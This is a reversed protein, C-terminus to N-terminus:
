AKKEAETLPMSAQYVAQGVDLILEMGAVSMDQLKQMDRYSLRGSVERDGIEFGNEIKQLGLRCAETYAAVPRGDRQLIAREWASKCELWEDWKLRRLFFKTPKSDPKLYAQVAPTLDYRTHGGWYLQLPHDEADKLDAAVKDHDWADDQPHIFVIPADARHHPVKLM